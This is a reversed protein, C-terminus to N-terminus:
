IDNRKIKQKVYLLLQDRYEKELGFYFFVIVSIVVSSIASLMWSFGSNFLVQLLVPVPIILLTLIVSKVVVSKLYAIIPFGTKLRAFYLRYAYVACNILVQFALIYYPELGIALIIWAIPVITLQIISLSIQYKKIDGTAHALMWLPSSLANVMYGLLMCVCFEATYEPVEVLWVNLIGNICLLVPFGIIFMLFFSIKSANFVLEFLNEKEDAAYYKVIQPRFATQFNETFNYVASGVQKAVGMAANVRVGLYINMFYNPGEHTAMGTLGGVLNWGSFGIMSKFLSKDKEFKYKCSDTFLKRCYIMYFANTLLAVAFMLISYEILKDHDLVLLCYVILLRLIAEVISLIAYVSMKEYSILMANYPVRLVNICFTLISFQYAVNAAFIRDPPISLVNNLFWLGVTELMLLIVCLFLVQINLSMSFIRSVNGKDSKGLEFSIFRLTASNLASQIFSLSIVVSGVINYIGYDEVGLVDLVVRSTYLTVLMIVAMRIYLMVTNKMIRKTNGSSESM